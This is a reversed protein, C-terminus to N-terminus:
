FIKSVLKLALGGLKPLFGRLVMMATDGVFNLAKNMFSPSDKEEQYKQTKLDQIESQMQRAKEDFGHKLLDKQEQLLLFFCEPFCSPPHLQALYYCISSKM